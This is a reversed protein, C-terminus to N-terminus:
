RPNLVEALLVESTSRALLYSMSRMLPADIRRCGASPAEQDACKQRQRISGHPAEPGAWIGDLQWMEYYFLWEATWPVISEALLMDDTWDHGDPYFLCLDAGAPDDHRGYLHPVPEDPAAERPSPAPSLVRVSPLRWAFAIQGDDAGRHDTIRVKYTQSVPRLEGEWISIWPLDLVLRLGPFHRRMAEAQLSAMLRAYRPRLNRSGVAHLPEQWARGPELIM